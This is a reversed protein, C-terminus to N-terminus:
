SGTILHTKIGHHVMIFNVDKPFIGQMFPSAGHRRGAMERERERKKGGKPFIARKLSRQGHLSPPGAAPGLRQWAASFNQIIRFFCPSIVLNQLLAMQAYLRRHCVDLCPFHCCQWVPGVMEICIALGVRYVSLLKSKRGLPSKKHSMQCLIESDM